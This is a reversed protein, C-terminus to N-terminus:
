GSIGHGEARLCKKVDNRQTIERKWKRRVKGLEKLDDANKKENGHLM